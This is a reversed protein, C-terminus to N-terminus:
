FRWGASGYIGVDFIDISSPLRLTSFLGGEFFTGTESREAWRLGARADAGLYIWYDRAGHSSGGGSLKHVRRFHETGVIGGLSHVTAWNSRGDDLRKWWTAGGQLEGSWVDTFNDDNWPSRVMAAGYYGRVWGDQPELNQGYRVGMTPTNWGPAAVLGVSHKLRPPLPDKESGKRPDAWPDFEPPAPMDAGPVPKMDSRVMALADRVASALMAAQHTATTVGNRESRAEPSLLVGPRSSDASVVRVRAVAHFPDPGDVPKSWSELSLIELRVPLADSSPRIWKRCLGEIEEAVPLKARLPVREEFVGVTAVGLGRPDLSAMRRMDRVEVVRIPLPLVVSDKPDDLTVAIPDAQIFLSLALALM